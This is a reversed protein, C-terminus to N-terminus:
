QKSPSCAMLRLTPSHRSTGVITNSQKQLNLVALSQSFYLYSWFKSLSDTALQCLINTDLGREEPDSRYEESLRDSILVNHQRFVSRKGFYRHDVWGRSARQKVRCVVKSLSARRPVRDLNPVGEDTHRSTRRPPSRSGKENLRPFIQHHARTVFSAPNPCPHLTFSSPHLPIPDHNQAESQKFYRLETPRFYKREINDLGTFIEISRLKV